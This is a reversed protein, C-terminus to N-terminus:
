KKSEPKISFKTLDYRKVYRDAFIKRIDQHDYKQIFRERWKNGILAGDFKMRYAAQIEPRSIQLVYIGKEYQHTDKKLPISLKLMHLNSVYMFLRASEIACITNIKDGTGFYKDNVSFVVSGANNQYKTKQILDPSFSLYVANEFDLSLASGRLFFLIVIVMVSKTKM